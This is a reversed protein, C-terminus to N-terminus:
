NRNLKYCTEGRETINKKIIVFDLILFQIKLELIGWRFTTGRIEHQQNALPRDDFYNGVSLLADQVEDDEDDSEDTLLKIQLRISYIELKNKKNIKKKGETLRLQVKLQRILWKEKVKAGRTIAINTM